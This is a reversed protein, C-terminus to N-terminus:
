RHLEKLVNAMEVLCETYVTRLPVPERQDPMTIHQDMVSTRFFTTRQEWITKWFVEARGVIENEDFCDPMFTNYGRKCWVNLTRNFLEFLYLGM